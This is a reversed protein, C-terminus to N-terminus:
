LLGHIIMGPTTGTARVFQVRFPETQGAAFTMTVDDRSDISRFTITGATDARIGKPVAPLDATDSPTILFQHRSPGDISNAPFIDTAM